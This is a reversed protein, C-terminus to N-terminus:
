HQLLASIKCLLMRALASSLTMKAPSTKSSLFSVAKEGERKGKERRRGRRERRRGRRERGREEGEGRGGERRGEGNVVGVKVLGSAVRRCFQSTCM